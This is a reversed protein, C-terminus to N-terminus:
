DEGGYAISPAEDAGALPESEVGALRKEMMEKRKAVDGLKGGAEEIKKQAAALSDGFRAFETKVQSLIKWVEATQKSIALTRFGVQLSNLLAM